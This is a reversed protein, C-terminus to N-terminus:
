KPSGLVEAMEHVHRRLADEVERKAEDLDDFHRLFFKNGLFDVRYAPAKPRKKWDARRSIVAGVGSGGVVEPTWCNRTIERWNM